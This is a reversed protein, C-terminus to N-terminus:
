REIAIEEVEMWAPEPNPSTGMKIRGSPPFAAYQNDVWLIFGLPGWPAVSTLLVEQDDVFFRVYRDGWELRYTRWQTPDGPVLAGSENLLLRAARRVLRATSPLALLPLALAGPALLLAPLNPASFTAVLFGQAPHDDRFALHNPAGAFFFWAANPLAPLKRAAGSVGFSASFPDNWLGFGWTGPLDASSARARLELRLPPTWPFRKRALGLHDDLQAWRYTGGPGAPIELRWSGPSVERVTGGANERVQLTPKM